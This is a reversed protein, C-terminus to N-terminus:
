AGAAPLRVDRRIGHLIRGARVAVAADSARRLLFLGRLFPPGGASGVTGIGGACPSPKHRATKSASRALRRPARGLEVRDLDELARGDLEDQVVMEAVGPQCNAVTSLGWARSWEAERRRTPHTPRADRGRPVPSHSASPERTLTGSEVFMLGHREISEVEKGEAPDAWHTRWGQLLRCPAAQERPDVGGLAGRRTM